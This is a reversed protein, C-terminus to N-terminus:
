GDCGGSSHVGRGHSGGGRPPLLACISPQFARYVVKAQAQTINSHKHDCSMHQCHGLVSYVLCKNPAIGARHALEMLLPTGQVAVCIWNEETLNIISTNDDKNKTLLARAYDMAKKAAKREDETKTWKKTHKKFYWYTEHLMQQDMFYYM